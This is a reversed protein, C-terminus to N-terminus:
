PMPVTPDDSSSASTDPSDINDANSIDLNQLWKNLTQKSQMLGTTVNQASQINAIALLAQITESDQHQQVLSQQVQKLTILTERQINPGSLTQLNQYWSESNLDHHSQYYDIQAKSPYVYVGNSETVDNGTIDKAISALEPIPENSTIAQRESQIKNLAYMGASKQAIAQRITAQANQFTDSTTLRRIITAATDGSSDGNASSIKQNLLNLDILQSYIPQYNKTAFQIYEKASTVGGNTDDYNLSTPEIFNAFDLYNDHLSSPQGHFVPDVTTGNITYNPDTHTAFNYNAFLTDSATIGWSHDKISDNITSLTDSAESAQQTDTLAVGSSTSTEIAADSIPQLANQIAQQSLDNTNHSADQMAKGSAANDNWITTMQPDNQYRYSNDSEQQALSLRQIEEGIVNIDNNLQAIIAGAPTNAMANPTLLGLTLGTLSSLTTILVTRKTHSM